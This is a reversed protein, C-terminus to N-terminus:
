DKNNKKIVSKIYDTFLYSNLGIIVGMLVGMIFAIFFNNLMYDHLHQSMYLIDDVKIIDTVNINTDSYM